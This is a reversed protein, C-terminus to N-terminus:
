RVTVGAAYYQANQVMSARQLFATVTIGTMTALTYNLRTHRESLVDPPVPLVIQTGAPISAAALAATTAVTAPSGFASTDDTQLAITLTGGGAPSVDVTVVVVLPEGIGLNRDQSHDISNTSAATAVLAQADSYLQQADVYAMMKAGYKAAIAALQALLPSRFIHRM